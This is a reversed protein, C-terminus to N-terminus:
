QEEPEEESDQSPPLPACESIGVKQLTDARIIELGELDGINKKLSDLYLMSPPKKWTLDNLIYTYARTQREEGSPSVVTINIWKRCYNNYSRNTPYLSYCGYYSDLMEVERQSLRFVTGTVFDYDKIDIPEKEQIEIQRSSKRSSSRSRKRSRQRAYTNTFLENEDKREEASVLSRFSKISAM